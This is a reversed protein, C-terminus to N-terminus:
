NESGAIRNYLSNEMEINLQCLGFDNEANSLHSLDDRLRTLDYPNVYVYYSTPRTDMVHHLVIPEVATPEHVISHGVRIVIHTNYIISM